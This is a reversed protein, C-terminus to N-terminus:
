GTPRDVVSYTERVANRRRRQVDIMDGVRVSTIDRVTGSSSVICPQFVLGANSYTLQTLLNLAATAAEDASGTSIADGGGLPIATNPPYIRGTRAKGLTVGSDWTYVLSCQNPLTQTGQNGATSGNTVAADGTYHGAGDINAAKCWLLLTTAPIRAGISSFWTAIRPLLANTLDQLRDQPVPVQGLNTDFGRVGCQWVDNQTGKARLSGGFTVLTHPTYAM